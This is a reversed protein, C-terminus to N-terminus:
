SGPNLRNPQYNTTFLLTTKQLWIPADENPGPDPDQDSGPDLDQDPGAGFDQDPSMPSGPLGHKEGLGIINMLM